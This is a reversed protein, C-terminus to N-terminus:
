RKNFFQVTLEIVKDQEDNTLTPFMPLSLCKEYYREARHLDGAKWGLQRYYPMLHVPIYHVQTFIHHNRLFDYLEKRREVQIIYLHYANGERYKGVNINIPTNQFAEDYRKAIEIRRAIGEKARQLQSIGLSALIDPMRYNYGLDQMEYYWGGDNQQLLLPDKTVGHTRLMSLKRYLDENDTTVMGGEGCAIHKVPHFSFVSVDALRGNGCYQKQGTSDVFYGGPAHCADEIIWLNYKDAMSRLRELDVPLGAFDVPIVGCYYGSPKSRLKEELKNLDMLATDPDIDVFDVKGGCYAICNASAVFTIPTTLVVSSANVGLALSSIHLAETANGVLVAYKAGVYNAFAQEFEGVKPGQTLFDSKLTNVVADIDAQTINQRGYPISKIM